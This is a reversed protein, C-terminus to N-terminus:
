YRIKNHLKRRAFGLIYRSRHVCYTNAHQKIKVSQDSSFGFFFGSCLTILDRETAYVASLSRITSPHSGTKTTLKGHESFVFLFCAFRRSHLRYHNNTYGKVQLTNIEYIEIYAQM